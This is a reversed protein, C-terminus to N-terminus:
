HLSERQSVGHRSREAMEFDQIQRPDQSPGKGCLEQRIQASFDQFDFWRLSIRGAAPPRGKVGPMWLFTGIESAGISTFFAQNEIKIM